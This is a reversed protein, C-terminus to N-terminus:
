IVSVIYNMLAIFLVVGILIIIAYKFFDNLPMSNFNNRVFYMFFYLSIGLIFLAMFGVILKLIMQTLASNESESETSSATLYYLIEKNASASAGVLDGYGDNDIDTVILDHAWSARSVNSDVLHRTFSTGDATLREYWMYYGQTNVSISPITNIGIDLDGDGDIDYAEISMSGNTWVQNTDIVTEVWASMNRISNNRSDGYLTLNNGLGSLDTVASDNGGKMSVYFVLDHILVNDQSRGLSYEQAIESDTLSQNFIKIKGISGNFPRARADRDGITLSDSSNGLTGNLKNTNAQKVGNVYMVVDKSSNINVIVNYWEGGLWEQSDSSISGITGTNNIFQFLVTKTINYPAIQYDIKDIIRSYPDYQRTFNTYTPSFWTSITMEEFSQNLSESNNVKAPLTFNTNIWHYDTAPNKYWSIKDHKWHNVLVDLYGDGDFDVIDSHWSTNLSLTTNVWITTSTPNYSAFFVRTKGGNEPHHGNTVIDPNGDNDLDGANAYALNSLSTSLTYQNWLSTNSSNTGNPNKFWYLGGKSGYTNGDNATIIDDIGDSDIDFIKIGRLGVLGANNWNFSRNSTKILNRTWTDGSGNYWYLSGNGLNYDDHNGSLAGGIIDLSGDGDIDGVQIDHANTLNTDVIHRTWVTESVQEYWYVSDNLYADAVIDIDGDGDIDGYAIDHSGNLLTDVNVVEIDLSIAVVFPIILLLLIVLNTKTLKYSVM